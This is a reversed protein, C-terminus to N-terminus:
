SVKLNCYGFEDDRRSAVRVTSLWPSSYNQSLLMTWLDVAKAIFEKYLTSTHVVTHVPSISSPSLQPNKWSSTCRMVDRDWSFVNRVVHPSEGRFVFLTIYRSRRVDPLEAMLMLNFFILSTTRRIWSRTMKITMVVNSLIMMSSM